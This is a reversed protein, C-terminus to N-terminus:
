AKTELASRLAAVRDAAMFISVTQAPEYVGDDTSAPVFISLTANGSQENMDVRAMGWGLDVMTRKNSM